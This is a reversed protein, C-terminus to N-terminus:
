YMVVSMASTIRLGEYNALLKEKPKTHRPLFQMPTDGFAKVRDRHCQHSTMSDIAPAGQKPTRVKSMIWPSLFSTSLRVVRSMPQVVRSMPQTVRSMPQKRVRRPKALTNVYHESLQHLIEYLGLDIKPLIIHCFPIFGLKRGHYM